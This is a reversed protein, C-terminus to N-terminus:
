TQAVNPISRLSVHTQWVTRDLDDLVLLHADKDRELIALLADDFMPHFKYLAQACLYFKTSNTLHLEEHVSARLEAVEPLDRTDIRPFFAGLGTM